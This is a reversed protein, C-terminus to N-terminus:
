CVPPPLTQHEAAEKTYTLEIVWVRNMTPIFEYGIYLARPLQSQNDVILQVVSFPGETPGHYVKGSM